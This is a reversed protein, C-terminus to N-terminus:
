SEDDVKLEIQQGLTDYAAVDDLDAYPYRVILHTSGTKQFYRLDANSPKYNHKPHSHVSGGITHDLPIMDFRTTAFGEGYTSAPIVLIESIAGDEIRLQGTFECPHMNKSVGLIFELAVPKIKVM